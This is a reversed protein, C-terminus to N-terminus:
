LVVFVQDQSYVNGLLEAILEATNSTIESPKVLVRNGAAIAAILPEIVLNFPYNWPAMIGVVGKPQPTISCKSPYFKWDSHWTKPRVWQKIHKLTHKIEDLCVMIEALLSEESSRHSFDQSIAKIVKAQDSKIVKALQKLLRIREEVSLSPLAQMIQLQKIM